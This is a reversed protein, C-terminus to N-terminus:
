GHSQEKNKHSLFRSVTGEATTVTVISVTGEATTVTIM